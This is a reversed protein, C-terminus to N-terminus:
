KRRKESSRVSTAAKQCRGGANIRGLDIEIGNQKPLSKEAFCGAMRERSSKALTSFLCEKAQIIPPLWTVERRAELSPPKQFKLFNPYLLFSLVRANAGHNLRPSVCLM